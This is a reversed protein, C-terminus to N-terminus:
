TRDLMRMAAPALRYPARGFPLRAAVEVPVCGDVVLAGEWVLRWLAEEYRESGPELGASRAACFAFVLSGVRGHAQEANIARLLRAADGEAHVSM